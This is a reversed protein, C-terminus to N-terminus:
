QSGLVSTVPTAIGSISASRLNHNRLKWALAATCMSFVVLVGLIHPMRHAAPFALQVISAFLVSLCGHTWKGWLYWRRDLQPSLVSWTQMLVCVGGFGCFGACLVFRTGAADFRQLAICGNALELLGSILVQGELPLIWLIWRELFQIGIRFLIVWGGITGMIRVTQQLASVLSGVHTRRPSCPPLPIKHSRCPLIWAIALASTIHIGWLAWPVWIEEFLSGIMGFLFAPGCANCFALMRQAESRALQGAEYAQNVCQAGVPYGGLLGTLWITEAGEPVPLIRRIPRLWRLDSGFVSGTLFVSLFLFPFLTPVVTYLCLGIGQQAGSLATKPDLILCLMGIAAFSAQLVNRHNRMPMM